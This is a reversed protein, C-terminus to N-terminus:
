NNAAAVDKAEAMDEDVPAVDEDVLIHNTPDDFNYVRTRSLKAKFYLCGQNKDWHYGIHSMTAQDFEQNRTIPTMPVILLPMNFHKIIKMVPSTYNWATNKGREKMSTMRKVFYNPWNLLIGNELVHILHAEDSDIRSHGGSCPCLIHSVIWHLIRPVSKIMDITIHENPKVPREHKLISQLYLRTSFSPAHKEDRFSQLVSSRLDIGFLTM